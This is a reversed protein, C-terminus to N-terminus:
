LYGRIRLERDTKLQKGLVEICINFDAKRWEKKKKNYIDLSIDPYLEQILQYFVQGKVIDTNAIFEEKKKM